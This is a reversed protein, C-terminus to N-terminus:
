IFLSIGNGVRVGYVQNMLIAMKKFGFNLDQSDWDVSLSSVDQTWFKKYDDNLNINIDTKHKQKDRATSTKITAVNLDSIVSLDKIWENTELEAFPIKNPFVDEFSNFFM